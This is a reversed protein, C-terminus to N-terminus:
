PITMLLHSKCTRSLWNLVLARNKANEQPMAGPIDLRLAAYTFTEALAAATHSRIWLITNLSKEAEYAFERAVETKGVGGLGHLAISKIQGHPQADLKAQVHEMVERRPFFRSNRAPLMVCHSPLSAGGEETTWSSRTGSSSKESKDTKRQLTNLEKLLAYSHDFGIM